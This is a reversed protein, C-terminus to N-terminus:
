SRRWGRATAAPASRIPACGVPTTLDPRCPSQCCRERRERGDADTETAQAINRRCPASRSADARRPRAPPPVAPFPLVHEDGARGAEDAAPQHCREGAGAVLDDHQGAIGRLSRRQARREPQHRAEILDRAVAISAITLRAPSGIALANHVPALAAADESRAQAHGRSTTRRIARSSRLGATSTLPEAMPQYPRHCSSCSSRTRRRCAGAEAVADALGPLARRLRGCIVAHAHHPQADAEHEAGLAAHQRAAASATRTRGRRASRSPLCHIDHISRSSRTRSIAWTMAVASSEGAGTLAVAGFGTVLASKVWSSPRHAAGDPM